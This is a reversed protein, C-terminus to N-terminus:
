LKLRKNNHKRGNLNQTRRYLESLPSAIKSFNRVFKRYYGALGLFSRVGSVNVPPPWDQIAKVKDKEMSIGEASVVHGLFSLSEKFFSCKKANAYLRNERLLDLAQRVHRRHEALSRSYILIDDLFVIVFKDLYPRFISNMMHMFTAPANTLGFPLVLFEFHGYRTRFATKPIDDPHIRVQHYGSRLDLKSFYKAGRIRDFLEDCRPLPYRNKVTLMNLGRYDICMRLSGDKKKVFLVPAGFPSTSPRIFGNSLLQDLQKRMEDLEGPSMEISPGTSQNAGPYYNLGIILKERQHYDPHFNRRFYIKTSVESIEETCKELVEKKEETGSKITVTGM